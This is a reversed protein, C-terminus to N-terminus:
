LSVDFKNDTSVLVRWSYESPFQNILRPLHAVRRSAVRVEKIRDWTGQHDEEQVLNGRYAVPRYITHAVLWNRAFSTPIGDKWSEMTEVVVPIWVM